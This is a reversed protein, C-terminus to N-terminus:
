RNDPPIARADHRRKRARQMREVAINFVDALRNQLGYEPRDENHGCGLPNCIFRYFCRQILATACRERSTITVRKGTSGDAADPGSIPSGKTIVVMPRVSFTEDGFRCLDKRIVADIDCVQFRNKFPAVIRELIQHDVLYGNGPM